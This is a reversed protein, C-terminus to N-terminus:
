TFLSFVKMALHSQTVGFSPYAKLHGVIMLVILHEGPSGGWYDIISLHGVITGLGMLHSGIIETLEVKM